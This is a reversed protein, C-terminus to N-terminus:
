AALPVIEKELTNGIKGRLTDLDYDAQLGLWFQASTGFFRALRLAMDADMPKERSTIARIREVNIRTKSALAVDSLGFPKLFEEELVEGPHIPELVDVAM